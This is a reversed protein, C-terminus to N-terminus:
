NARPHRSTEAGSLHAPPHVRIAAILTCPTPLNKLRYGDWHARALSHNNRMGEWSGLHTSRSTVKSAEAPEATPMKPALPAPLLVSKFIIARAAVGESPATSTSPRTAASSSSPMPKWGSNVPRDLAIVAPWSRPSLIASTSCASGSISRKASIPSKM